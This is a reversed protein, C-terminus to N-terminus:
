RSPLTQRRQRHAESLHSPCMGGALSPFQCEGVSCRAPEEPAPPGVEGTVTVEFSLEESLLDPGLVVDATEPLKLRERIHAKVDEASLSGGITTTQVTKVSIKM